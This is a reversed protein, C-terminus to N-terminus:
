KLKGLYQNLLQFNVVVVSNKIKEM